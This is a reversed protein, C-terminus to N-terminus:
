PHSDWDRTSYVLHPLPFQQLYNRGSNHDISSELTKYKAFMHWHSPPPHLMSKNWSQALLKSFVYWHSPSPHLVSQKWSAALLRSFVYRHSPSPHLRLCAYWHSPSPHLIFVYLHSHCIQRLCARSSLGFQSVRWHCPSPHLTSPELVACIGPQLCVTHSPSPHLM